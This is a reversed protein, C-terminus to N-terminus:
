SRGFAQLFTHVAADTVEHLEADAVRRTGLQSRIELPATFLATFQEAARSPDDIALRGALSLRALRDALADNVRDMARGRILDLLDPFRTIEAYMLRRVAWSRDDCYCQGLRFAVALLVERVEGTDRALQEVAELNKAVARDADRAFVARFLTEKDGFHNYVTRKAVGAEIAITDVVALAYGERAFVTFAADLIAERKDIRGRATSNEPHAKAEAM